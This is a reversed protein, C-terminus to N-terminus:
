RSRLSAQLPSRCGTATWGHAEARFCPMTGELDRSGTEISVLEQLTAIVAPKEQSALSYVPEVPDARVPAMVTGYACALWAIVRILPHM